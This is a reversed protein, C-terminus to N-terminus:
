YAFKIRAMCVSSVSELYEIIEGISSESIGLGAGVLINRFGEGWKTIGIAGGVFGFAASIGVSDWSFSNTLLGQIATLSSSIGSNILGQVGAYALNGFKGLKTLTSGINGLASGLAGSIVGTVSGWMFGEAASNWDWSAVGNEYTIGGAITGIAASTVGGITAGMAIVHVAAAVTGAAAGGTVITAVISAALLVGGIVWHWWANGNPDVRMVPNNGCYAYLNLGNITEPELYSIDDMSIFRGTQPDYYRSQLFYLGTETDFYYSRYRIPNIHGVHNTSEIEDGNEDYTKVIHNGWADYVYKVM